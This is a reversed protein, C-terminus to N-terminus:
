RPPCPVLSNDESVTSDYLLVSMMANIKLANQWTKPSFLLLYPAEQALFRYTDPLPKLRVYFVRSIDLKRVIVSKGASKFTLDSASTAVPAINVQRGSKLAVMLHERPGVPSAQVDVWSSRGSYIINHIETGDGIRIIDSRLIAVDHGHSATKRTPPLDTSITLSSGDLNTIYGQECRGSRVAITYLNDRAIAGLQTWPDKDAALAIPLLLALLTTAALRVRM